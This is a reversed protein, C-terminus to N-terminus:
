IDLGDFVFDLFDQSEQTLSKAKALSPTFSRIWNISALTIFVGTRSGVKVDVFPASGRAEGVVTRITKTYEDFGLGYNGTFTDENPYLVSVFLPKHERRIVVTKDKEKNKALRALPSRPTSGFNTITKKKPKAQKRKLLTLDKTKEWADLSSEDIDYVACLNFSRYAASDVLSYDDVIWYPKGKQVYVGEHITPISVPVNRKM